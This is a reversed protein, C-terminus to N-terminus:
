LASLGVLEDDDARPYFVVKETYNLTNGHDSPLVVLMRWAPDDPDPKSAHPFEARTRTNLGLGDLSAAVGDYSISVAARHLGIYDATAVELADKPNGYDGIHITSSVPNLPGRVIGGGMWENTDTPEALIVVLYADSAADDGSVINGDLVATFGAGVPDLMAFVAPVVQPVVVTTLGFGPVLRGDPTWAGNYGDGSEWVDALACIGIDNRWYLGNKFDSVMIATAPVWTPHPANASLRGVLDFYARAPDTSVSAIAWRQGDVTIEDDISVPDIGSALVLIRQDKDTYGGERQAQTIQDIQAKVAHTTFSVSGGGQGDDTHAARHLVADLFYTGMVSAFVGAMGGDLLGM